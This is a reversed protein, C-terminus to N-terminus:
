RRRIMEPTLQKLNQIGMLKMDRAVETKLNELARDVGTRGAAALAYLYM